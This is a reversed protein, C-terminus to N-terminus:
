VRALGHVASRVSVGHGNSGVDVDHIMPVPPCVKKLIKERELVMTILAVKKIQWYSLTM